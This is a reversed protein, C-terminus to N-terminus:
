AYRHLGLWRTRACQTQRVLFRTILCSTFVQVSDVAPFVWSRSLEGAILSFLVGISLSVTVIVIRSLSVPLRRAGFGLLVGAVVPILEAM